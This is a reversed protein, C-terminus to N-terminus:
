NLLLQNKWPFKPGTYIRPTQGHNERVFKLLRTKKQENISLKCHNKTCHVKFYFIICFESLSFYMLGM